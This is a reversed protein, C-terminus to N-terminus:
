TKLVLDGAGPREGLVIVQHDGRVAQVRPRTAFERLNEFRRDIQAFVFKDPEAGVLFEVVGKSKNEFFGFM